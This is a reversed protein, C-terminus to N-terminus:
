SGVALVILALAETTEAVAGLAQPNIGGLRREFYVRFGVALAALAVLVLIGREETVTFLLAITFITAVWFERPGVAPAFRRGADASGAERTGHALLVMAWRGLMPALLVGGIRDQESLLDFARVKLILLFFIAATGFTGLRRDRMTALAWERGRFGILGDATNAFGDLQRGGSVIALAAVLFVSAIEQSFVSRLGWDLALLWVGIAVGVVPYFLAERGIREEAGPARRLVTLSRVATLCDAVLVSPANPDSTAVPEDPAAEPARQIEEAM